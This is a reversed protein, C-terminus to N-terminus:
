WLAQVYNYINAVCAFLSLFFYIFILRYDVVAFFSDHHHQASRWCGAKRVVRKLVHGEASCLVSFIAYYLDNKNILHLNNGVALLMVQVIYAVHLSGM